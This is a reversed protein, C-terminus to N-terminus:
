GITQYVTHPSALAGSQSPLRIASGSIASLVTELDSQMDDVSQYREGPDIAMAREIIQACAPPVNKRVDRPDPPSAHCHAYMVQVVSGRDEYPNKGTLLSYYTAGLAYIDSRADVERSDCQEPSMFYPTGVLQGARTVQMADGDTKKALGFASLAPRSM